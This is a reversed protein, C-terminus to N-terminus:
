ANHGIQLNKVEDLSLGSINVFKRVSFMNEIHIALISSGRINSLQHVVKVTSIGIIHFTLAMGRKRDDTFEFREIRIKGCTM